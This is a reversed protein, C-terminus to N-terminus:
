NVWLEERRRLVSEPIPEVKLARYKAVIQAYNGDAQMAKFADQWRAAVEDSVDPSAAFWIESPRVIQGFNLVTADGGVQKYAYIVMLRPALWADIRRDKM